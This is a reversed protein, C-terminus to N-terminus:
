VGPVGGGGFNPDDYQIKVGLSGTIFRLLAMHGNGALLWTLLSVIVSLVVCAGYVVIFWQIPSM